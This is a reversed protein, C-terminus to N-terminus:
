QRRHPLVALIESRPSEPTADLHLILAAPEGDAEAPSVVLRSWQEQSSGRCPYKLTFSNLQGELVAQLGALLHLRRREGEDADGAQEIADFAEIYLRGLFLDDEGDAAVAANRRWADNVALIVGDADILTGSFPLADMIGRPWLDAFAVVEGALEAQAAARDRAGLPIDNHDAPMDQYTPLM